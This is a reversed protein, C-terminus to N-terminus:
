LAGIMIRYKLTENAIAHRLQHDNACRSDCKRIEIKLEVLTIQKLADCITFLKTGRVHDFQLVLPNKEGCDVCPHRKLWELVYRTNEILRTQRDAVSVHTRRARM